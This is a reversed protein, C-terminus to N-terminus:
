TQFAAITVQQLRNPKQSLPVMDPGALLPVLFRGGCAKCWAKLMGIRKPDFHIV